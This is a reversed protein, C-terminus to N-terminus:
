NGKSEKHIGRSRKSIQNQIRATQIDDVTKTIPLVHNISVSEIHSKKGSHVDDLKPFAIRTSKVKKHDRLTRLAHLFNILFRKRSFESASNKNSNHALISIFVYTKYM